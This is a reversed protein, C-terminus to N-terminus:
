CWCITWLKFLVFLNIPSFYVVSASHRNLATYFRVVANKGTQLQSENEFERRTWLDELSLKIGQRATLVINYSTLQFTHLLSITRFEPLPNTPTPSWPFDTVFTFPLCFTFLTKTKKRQKRCRLYYKSLNYRYKAQRFKLYKM